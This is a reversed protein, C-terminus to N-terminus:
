SGSRHGLVSGDWFIVSKRKFREWKDFVEPVVKGDQRLADM